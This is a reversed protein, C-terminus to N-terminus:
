ADGRLAYLTMRTRRGEPRVTGAKEVLGMEELEHTATRFRSAAFRYGYEWTGRRIIDEHTLPTSADELIRAVAAQSAARSGASVDAAEHSTAPDTLRTRATDGDLVIHQSTEPYIM